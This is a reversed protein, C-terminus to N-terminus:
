APPMGPHETDSEASDINIATSDRATKSGTPRDAHSAGTEERGPEQGDQNKIDEGKRTGPTHTPGSTGANGM